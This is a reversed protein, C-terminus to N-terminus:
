GDTVAEEFFPDNVPLLPRKSLERAFWWVWVGGIGIVAALDIWLGSVPHHGGGHLADLTPAVNWYYDVWRMALLFAAVKVLTAARKKLDASLLLLFPLVFHAVLLVVSLGVWGPGLRALYFPIEEPLNGSWILLLQSFSLYAWLMVFALLLKGFDHFHLRRYVERMPERRNLWAAVLIVFTLGSLGTGTLFWLGYLSSFWHPDLSMMWDVGAFTLTLALVLFGPAAYTQLRTFLEPEGTEDQKKSLASLRYAFFIWIGFYVATRVLFGPANLYASKHQLVPDAAVAELDAGRYLDRLGFALPACLVLLLPLTRSAAELPRRIVIGWAGRTMHHLMSLGMCGLAVTTWFVFGLLYAQFFHGRDVLFGGGAVALGLVGVVLARGQLGGLEPPPAYREIDHADM